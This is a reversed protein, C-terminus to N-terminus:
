FRLVSAAAESQTPKLELVLDSDTQEELHRANGLALCQKLLLKEATLPQGSRRYNFRLKMLSDSDSCLVAAVFDGHTPLYILFIYTKFNLIKKQISFVSIRSKKKRSCVDNFKFRKFREGM